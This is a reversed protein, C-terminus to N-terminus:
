SHTLLACFVRRLLWSLDVRDGIVPVHLISAVRILLSFFLSCLVRLPCYSISLQSGLFSSGLSTIGFLSCCCHPCRRCYPDFTVVADFSTRRRPDPADLWPSGRRRARAHHFFLHQLPCVSRPAVSRVQRQAQRQAAASARRLRRLTRGEDARCHPEMSTSLPRRPRYVYCLCFFGM